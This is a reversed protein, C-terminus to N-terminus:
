AEDADEDLDDPDGDDLGVDQTPADPEVTDTSADEVQDAPWDFAEAPEAAHDPRENAGDVDDLSGAGFDLDAGPDTGLDPWPDDEPEPGDDVEDVGDVDGTLDPSATTLLDFWDAPEEGATHATVFPALQEALEPPATDAFSVVAEALLDPPLDTHGHEALYAEPGGARAAADGVLDALLERLPRVAM